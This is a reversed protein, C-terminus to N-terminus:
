CLAATKHNKLAEVSPSFSIKSFGKGASQLRQLRESLVSISNMTQDDIQRDGALSDNLIQLHNSDM